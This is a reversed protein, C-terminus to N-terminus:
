SRKLHNLKPVAKLLSPGQQSMAEDAKSETKNQKRNNKVQWV